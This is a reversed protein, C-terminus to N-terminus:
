DWTRIHFRREFDSREAFSRGQHGPKRTISVVFNMPHCIAVGM